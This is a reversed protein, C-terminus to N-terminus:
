VNPSPVMFPKVDWNHRAEYRYTFEFFGFLYIDQNHYHVVIILSCYCLLDM